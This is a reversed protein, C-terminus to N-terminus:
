VAACFYVHLVFLIQFKVCEISVVNAANFDAGTSILASLVGAHGNAAAVFVPTFKNQM